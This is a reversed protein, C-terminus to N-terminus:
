KEISKQQPLRNRNDEGGNCHAIKQGAVAWIDRKEKENRSKAIKNMIIWFNKDFILEYIYVYIQPWMSVNKLANATERSRCIIGNM